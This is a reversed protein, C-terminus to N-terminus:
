IIKAEAAEVAKSIKDLGAQIDGSIHVRVVRRKRDRLAQLDGLAQAQKLIVLDM